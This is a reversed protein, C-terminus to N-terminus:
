ASHNASSSHSGSKALGRSLLYGVTVLAVLSWADQAGFPDGNNNGDGGDGSGVDSGTVAAAVLIAISIAIYIWFETTKLAGKTETHHERVPVNATRNASANANVNSM